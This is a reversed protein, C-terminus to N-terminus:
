VVFARLKVIDGAEVAETASNVLQENMGLSNISLTGRYEEVKSFTLKVICM